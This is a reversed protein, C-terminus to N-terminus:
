PRGRKGVDTLVALVKDAAADWTFQKALKKGLATRAAEEKTGKEALGQSM